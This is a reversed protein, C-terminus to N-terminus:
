MLDCYPRGFYVTMLRAEPEHLISLLMQQKLKNHASLCDPDVGSVTINLIRGLLILHRIPTYM